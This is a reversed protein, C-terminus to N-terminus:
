QRVHDMKWQGYHATEFTRNRKMKVIVQL